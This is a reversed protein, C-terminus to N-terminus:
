APLRILQCSLEVAHQCPEPKRGIKTEALMEAGTIVLKALEIAGVSLAETEIVAGTIVLEALEIAGVSPAETKSAAGTMVLKALKIAGVSSAETNSAAGITEECPVITAILKPRWPAIMGPKAVAVAVTMAGSIVLEVDIAAGTIEALAIASPGVAVLITASATGTIETVVEATAGDTFM